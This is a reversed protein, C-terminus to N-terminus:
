MKPPVLEFSISGPTWANNARLGSIRFGQAPFSYTVFEVEGSAGPQSIRVGDGGLLHRRLPSDPHMIADALLLVNNGALRPILVDHWAIADVTFDYRPAKWLRHFFYNWSETRGGSPPSTHVEMIVHGRPDRIRASILPNGPLPMQWSLGARELARKADPESDGLGVGFTQIQTSNLFPPGTFNTTTVEVRKLSKRCSAFFVALLCLLGAIVKTTVGSSASTRVSMSNM